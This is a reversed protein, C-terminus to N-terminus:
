QSGGDTSLRAIVQGPVVDEGEAVCLEVIRGSAQSLVEATAKDTEMEAVPEDVAVQDGVQKLWQLLTAEDMTVGWKPVVIETM